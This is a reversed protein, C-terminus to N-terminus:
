PGNLCWIHTLPIWSPKKMLSPSEYSEEVEEVVVHPRYPDIDMMVDSITNSSRRRPYWSVMLAHIVMSHTMLEEEVLRPSWWWGLPNLVMELNNLVMLPPKMMEFLHHIYSWVKHTYCSRTLHTCPEELCLGVRYPTLPVLLSGQHCWNCGTPGSCIWTPMLPIKMLLIGRQWQHCCSISGMRAHEWKTKIERKTKM